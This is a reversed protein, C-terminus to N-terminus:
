ALVLHWPIAAQTKLSRQRSLSVQKATAASQEDAMHVFGFGRSMGAPLMPPPPNPFRKCWGDLLYSGLCFDLSVRQQTMCCLQTCFMGSRSLCKGCCHMM